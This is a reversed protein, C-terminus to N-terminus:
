RTAHITKTMTEPCLETPCKVSVTIFPARRAAEETIEKTKGKERTTITVSDDIELEVEAGCTNCKLIKGVWVPRPAEIIGEKLTKM